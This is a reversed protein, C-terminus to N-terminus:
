IFFNLPLLVLIVLLLRKASHHARLCKTGSFRERTMQDGGIHFHKDNLDVGAIATCDELSKEYSDLIEITESYKQENKMVINFPLTCNKEALIPLPEEICKNVSNMCKSFYPLLKAAARGMLITYEKKVAQMEQSSPRLDVADIEAYDKQPTIDDLLSFNLNQVVAITAFAHRMYANRGIREDKVGVHWIIVNDGVLRIRQGRKLVEM